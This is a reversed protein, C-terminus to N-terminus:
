NSGTGKLSAFSRTGTSGVDHGVSRASRTLTFENPIPPAFACTHLNGIRQNGPVGQGNM